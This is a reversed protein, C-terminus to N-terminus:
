HSNVEPVHGYSLCVSNAGVFSLKKVFIVAEALGVTAWSRNKKPESLRTKKM